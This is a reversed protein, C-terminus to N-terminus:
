QSVFVGRVSENRSAPSQGTIKRNDVDRPPLIPRPGAQVICRQQGRPQYVAALEPQFAEDFLENRITRLFVYFKGVRHLKGALTAEEASLETPVSWRLPTPM